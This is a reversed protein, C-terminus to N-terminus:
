GDIEGAKTCCKRESANGFMCTNDVNNHDCAKTYCKNSKVVGAKMQELAKVVVELMPKSVGCNAGKYTCEHGKLYGCGICIAKAAEDIAEDIANARINAVDCKWVTCGACGDCKAEDKMAKITSIVSEKATDFDCLGSLAVSNAASNINDFQIKAKQLEEVTGIARYQQIEELAKIAMDIHKASMNRVKLHEIANRIEKESETM